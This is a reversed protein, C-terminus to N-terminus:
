ADVVLDSEPICVCPLIENSKLQFQPERTYRVKGHLLRIACSGCAGTRCGSELNVQNKAACGLLSSQSNDFRATANSQKFHVSRPATDVAAAVPKESQQFLEYRINQTAVGAASLDKSMQEQWAEPGCLHYDTDQIAWPSDLMSNAQFKGERILSETSRRVGKPFRSIWVNMEVQAHQSAIHLLSDAFPMHAVDRYQAFCRISPNGRRISEILMPLM